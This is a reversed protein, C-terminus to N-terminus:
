AAAAFVEVLNLVLATAQAAEPTEYEIWIGYDGGPALTGIELAAADTIPTAWSVGTPATEDDAITQIEGDTPEEIAIRVLPVADLTDTAGGAAASTGLLGRGTAPITLATDTRSSYYVIERTSGGSTKIHCGGRAPWDAFSGTTTITGAGSSGLQTSNSTRQTGLTGIKVKVSDAPVAGANRLFIARYQTVGSAAQASSINDFGVVNNLVDTLTLTAAGSLATASTRTVRVYKSAGDSGGGEIVKTESDAITVATGATGGPPTWTLTDDGTATLTGTGPGNLGAVHEVTINSIPSAIAVGLMEIETSSRNGGLSAAQDTQPDNVSAAGSHLLRLSDARTMEDSM